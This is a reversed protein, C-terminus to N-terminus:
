APRLEPSISSDKATHTAFAFMNSLSQNLSLLPMLLMHVPYQVLAAASGLLLSKINM